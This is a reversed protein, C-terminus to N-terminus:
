RLQALYLWCFRKYRFIILKICWAKVKSKYIKNEKNEKSAEQDSYVWDEKEPDTMKVMIMMTLIRMNVWETYCVRKLYKLNTDDQSYPEPCYQWMQKSLNAYLKWDAMRYIQKFWVNIIYGWILDALHGEMAWDNLRFSSIKNMRVLIPVSVHIFWWDKFPKIIRITEHHQNNM